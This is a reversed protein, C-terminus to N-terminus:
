RSSVGAVEIDRQVEEAVAVVGGFDIRVGGIGGLM